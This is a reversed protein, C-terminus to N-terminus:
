IDNLQTQLNDGFLYTTIPVHCACLSSHDKSLHPKIADCRRMSLVCMTHGLLALADTNMTILEYVQPLTPNRMQLLRDTTIGIITGVKSLLKQTTSARQDNHKTKNDLKDWIETNVHPVVFKECNEPRPYKEM